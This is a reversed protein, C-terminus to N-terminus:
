DDRWTIGVFEIGQLTFFTVDKVIGGCKLEDVTRSIECYLRKTQNWESLIKFREDDPDVVRVTWNKCYKEKIFNEPTSKFTVTKM